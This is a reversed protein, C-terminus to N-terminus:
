KKKLIKVKAVNVLSISFQGKHSQGTIVDAVSIHTLPNNGKNRADLKTGDQLTVSALFFLRGGITRSDEPSITVESIAELPINKLSEGNLVTIASGSSLSINKVQTEVGANDTVVGNADCGCLWLVAGCAAFLGLAHFRIM